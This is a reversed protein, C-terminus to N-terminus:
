VFFDSHASVYGLGIRRQGIIEYYDLGLAQAYWEEIVVNFIDFFQPTYVIGAPDCQGFRIKVAGFWLADGLEARTIPTPKEAPDINVPKNM